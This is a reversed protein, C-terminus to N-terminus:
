SMNAIIFEGRETELISGNEDTMYNAVGTREECVLSIPDRQANWDVRVVSYEMGEYEVVKQGAYDERRDFDEQTFGPCYSAIKKVVAAETLPYQDKITRCNYLELEIHQKVLDPLDERDLHYQARKEFEDFYGAYKLRLLEEPLTAGISRVYSEDM